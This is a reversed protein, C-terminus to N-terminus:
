SNHFLKNQSEEARSTVFVVGTELISLPRKTKRGCSTVRVHCGLCHAHPGVVFNALQCLCFAEFTEFGLNPQIRDTQELAFLCESCFPILGEQYVCVCACVRACMCACVCVCMYICVHVCMCM